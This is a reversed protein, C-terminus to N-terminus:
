AYLGCWRMIITALEARTLFDGPLLYGNENGQLIGQDCAWGVAEVAWPSVASFDPSNPRDGEDVLDTEMQETYRHLAVALEERTVAQEPAFHQDSVGTMIDQEECWAIAAAYWADDAVDAFTEQQIVVDPEGALRYLLMAVMGRTMTEEPSFTTNSTGLLQENVYAYYVAGAYWSTGAVDAYPSYWRAIEACTEATLALTDEAYNVGNGRDQEDVAQLYEQIPHGEMRCPRSMIRLQSEADAGNVFYNSATGRAVEGGMLLEYGTNELILADSRDSRRSYPYAMTTPNNGTWGGICSVSLDYDERIVAAYEEDTEGDKLNAGTRGDNNYRHLGYTHSCLNIEGSQEMEILEEWVCYPASQGVRTGGDDVLYWAEDINEGILNFDAKARYVRLLPWANKYVGETGDDISLIVAKAPLPKQGNIYDIVDDSTITTYGHRRLYQLDQEFDAPRLSYEEFVVGEAEDEETIFNHYMIVTVKSLEQPNTGAMIPASRTERTGDPAVPEVTYYAAQPWQAQDDRYSGGMTQGIWEYNGDQTDARYIDYTYGTKVPWILMVNSPDQWTASALHWTEEAALGATCLLSVGLFMCVLVALWRNKM